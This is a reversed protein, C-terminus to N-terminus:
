VKSVAEKRKGLRSYCKNYSTKSLFSLDLLWGKMVAKPKIITAKDYDTNGNEPKPKENQKICNSYKPAICM